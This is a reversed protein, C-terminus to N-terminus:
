KGPTPTRAEWNGPEHGSLNFDKRNLSKGLGDAETPWAGRDSYLIADSWQYACQKEAPNLPDIFCPPYPKQLVLLEGRNSVKGPYTVIPIENAIGYAARFEATDMSLTDQILLMMGNAPVADTSSFTLAIGKVSWAAQEAVDYLPVVTDSLNRIEIFELTGTNEVPHYHIENFYLPGMLPGSNQKGRTPEILSGQELSGDSLTIVGASSNPTVPYELGSEAGTEKGNVVERLYLSEGNQSFFQFDEADSVLYANAPVVSGAPVEYVEYSDGVERVVHWGSIDKAEAGSNYFEVWGPTGSYPMVENIRVTLPAIYEDPGGPNGGDTKSAAWSFPSGPFGGTYVLTHGEGAALSPWPPAGDFRCDVDGKGDLKVEIVDGENSLRGVTGKEPDIDWPGFLRGSFNPYREHFLAVDNTVVIYEGTDLPEAPFTYTIAGDLRLLADTMNQIAPGSEIKLEIFELDTTDNFMIESCSMITVDSNKTKTGSGPDCACFGAALLPLSWKLLKRKQM